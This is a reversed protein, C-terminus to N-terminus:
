ANIWGEFHRALRPTVVYSMTPVLIVTLVFTQAVLPWAGMMPSLVGILVTILAWIAAWNLVTMKLRQKSAPAPAATQSMMMEMLKSCGFIM